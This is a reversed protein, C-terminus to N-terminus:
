ILQKQHRFYFSVLESKKVKKEEPLALTMDVSDIVLGLFKIQHTPQLRSKKQNIVFGLNQLVFISTDRTMVLEEWTKGILLTNDLIMKVKLNITRLVSTSIKLSGSRNLPLKIRCSQQLFPIKYGGVISLHKSGPDSTGLQISFIKNQWGPRM